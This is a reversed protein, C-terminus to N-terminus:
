RLEWCTGVPIGPIHGFTKPDQSRQGMRDRPRDGDDKELILANGKRSLSASSSRNRSLALSEMGKDSYDIAPKGTRRSSRRTGPTSERSASTEETKAVKAVRGTQEEDESGEEKEVAVITRKKKLIPRKKVVPLPREPELGLSRLLEQNKLINAERQAAYSAM